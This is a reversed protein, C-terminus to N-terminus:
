MNVRVLKVPVVIFAFVFRKLHSDVLKDLGSRKFENMVYFIRGYPVTNESKTAVKTM